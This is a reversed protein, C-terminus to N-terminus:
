LCAQYIKTCAVKIEIPLSELVLHDYLKDYKKILLNERDIAAGPQIRYYVSKCLASSIISIVESISVPTPSYLNQLRPFIVANENRILDIIARAAADASVYYRITALDAFVRVESYTISSSLLHGILGCPIWKPGSQKFGWIGPLRIVTSSGYQSVIAENADIMKKYSSTYTSLYAGLSSLYLLRIEPQSRALLSNVLSSLMFVQQNAIDEAINFGGKGCAYIIYVKDFPSDRARELALMIFEMITRNADSYGVELTKTHYHPPRSFLNICNFVAGGILGNSGAIIFTGCSPLDVLTIRM